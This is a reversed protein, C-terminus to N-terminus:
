VMTPYQKAQQRVRKKYEVTDQVFQCSETCLIIVWMCFLYWVQDDSEDGTTYFFSMSGRTASYPTIYFWVYVLM